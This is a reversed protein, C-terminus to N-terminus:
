SFTILFSCYNATLWLAYFIVNKLVSVSSRKWSFQLIEMSVCHRRVCKFNLDKMLFFIVYLGSILVWPITCLCCSTLIFSALSVKVKISGLKQNVSNSGKPLYGNIDRTLPITGGKRFSHARWLPFYPTSRLLCFLRPTGTAYLVSLHSTNTPIM